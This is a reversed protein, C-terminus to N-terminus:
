VRVVRLVSALQITRM